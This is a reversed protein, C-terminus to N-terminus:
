LGWNNLNSWFSHGSPTDSWCMAEDCDYADKSIGRPKHELMYAVDALAQRKVELSLRNHDLIPKMSDLNRAEHTFKNERKM